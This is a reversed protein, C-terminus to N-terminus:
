KNKLAIVFNVFILHTKIKEMYFVGQDAQPFGRGRGQREM